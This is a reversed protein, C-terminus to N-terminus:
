NLHRGTCSLHMKMTIMQHMHVSTIKANVKVQEDGQKLNSTLGFGITGNALIHV